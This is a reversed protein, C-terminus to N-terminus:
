RSENLVELWEHSMWRLVHDGFAVQSAFKGGRVVVGVDSKQDPNIFEEMTCKVLDGPKV